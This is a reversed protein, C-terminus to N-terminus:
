FISGSDFIIPKEMKNKKLENIEKCIVHLAHAISFDDLLHDPIKENPYNEIFRKKQDKRDKLVQISHKEFEEILFEITYENNM